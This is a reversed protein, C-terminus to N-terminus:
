QHQSPTRIQLHDRLTPASSRPLVFSTWPCRTPPCFGVADGNIDVANSPVLPKWSPQRNHTPGLELLLAGQTLPITACGSLSSRGVKQDYTAAPRIGDDMPAHNEDAPRTLLGHTHATTAISELPRAGLNAGVGLRGLRREPADDAQSTAGFPGAPRLGPGRLGQAVARSRQEPCTTPV